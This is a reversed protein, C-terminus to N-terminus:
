LFAPYGYVCFVCQLYIGTKFYIFAMADALIPFIPLLTILSVLFSLQQYLSYRNCPFNCYLPTVCPVGLLIVSAPLMFNIRHGHKRM